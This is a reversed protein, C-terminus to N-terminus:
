RGATISEELEIRPIDTRPTKSLVWEFSPADATRAGLRHRWAEEDVGMLAFVTAIVSTHDFPTEGGARFVTNQEIWPSILLLPVRVGFRDYEFGEELYEPTPTGHDGHWPPTATWPPPVHDFTGGHEDFNVIFLVKNWVDPNASLADYLSKLFAEGAQVDSPPHYDTGNPLLGLGQQIGWQPEVFSFTPLNGSAIMGFLTDDGADGSEGVVGFHQDFHCSQLEELILRTYQYGEAKVLNTLWNGRSNFIMWDSAADRGADHLVNWMTPQCFQPGGPRGLRLTGSGRNNVWAHLAGNDAYGLSNGTAAFARNTNTQTPVSSFYRDSVAFHKALGNLVPLDKPTFTRMIQEPRRYWSVYDKVFGGMTPSVGHTPTDVTEFLQNNVHSYVEHPDFRPVHRRGGTGKTVFRDRDDIDRCGDFHDPPTPDVPPRLTVVRHPEDDDYLWGLVNDLSRNELMLYVIHEIDAM